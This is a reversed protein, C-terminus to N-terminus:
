NRQSKNFFYLRTKLYSPGPRLDAVGLLISGQICQIFKKGSLTDVIEPFPLEPEQSKLHNIAKIQMDVFDQLCDERMIKLVYDNNDDTSRVLINLDFESDLSSLKSKVGWHKELVSQWFKFNM